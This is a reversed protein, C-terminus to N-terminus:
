APASEASHRARDAVADDMRRRLDAALPAVHPYRILDRHSGPIRVLDWEGTLLPSWGDEVNCSRDDDSVYLVTRGTWATLRRAFRGQIAGLWYFVDFQREGKMRILGAVPLRVLTALRPREYYLRWAAPAASPRRHASRKAGIMRDSLRTDVVCLLAVDQGQDRLIQAAKFALVGGFSYGLILYPGRPQTRRIDKVYRAATATLTWDHLGRQELGRAQLGYFPQDPGLENALPIFALAMGGAGAVGFLPTKTGRANLTVICDRLPSRNTMEALHAATPSAAFEDYDVHGGSYRCLEDIMRRADAETGGLEFFNEEPKVDNILLVELWLNCVVQEWTYQTESGDNVQDRRGAILDQIAIALLRITPSAIVTSIPLTIDYREELQTFLRVCSLSTGGLDFFGDDIGLSDAETGLVEAFSTQVTREVETRPNASDSSAVQAHLSGADLSAALQKRDTKGSPTLPFSDIFVFGTPIMNEPLLARAFERLEEPGVDGTRKVFAVLSAERAMDTQHTTVVADLVGPCRMLCREVELPEIRFGRVKVQDDNRGLLLLSGDPRQVAMDGTRYARVSQGDVTIPAFREATLEPDNLYERALASGTVYIEGASGQPVVHGEADLLVCRVHDRPFGIPSDVDTASLRASTVRVTTETPGYFNRLSQVRPVIYEIASAATRESGTWMALEPDGSWGTETLMRLMSPSAYLARPRYRTVAEVLRAPDISADRALAVFTGGLVLPLMYSSVSADFNLSPTGMIRDGAHLDNDRIMWDLLDVVSHHEIVVGKPRGTSGSTFMVYAAHDGTVTPLTVGRAADDIVPDPDVRPAGIEDIVHSFREPGVVCSLRADGAILRLRELPYMPDLPVYTMAARLVGVVGVVFDDSQDACLGITSEAALGRAVLSKALNTSRSWLESFTITRGRGTVAVSDPYNACASEILEVLSQTPRDGLSESARV